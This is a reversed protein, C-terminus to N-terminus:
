TGLRRADLAFGVGGLVLALGVVLGTAMTVHAAFLDHVAATGPVAMTADSPRLSRGFRLTATSTVAVIGLRAMWARLTHEPEDHQAEAM